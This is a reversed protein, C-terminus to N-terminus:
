TIELEAIREFEVPIRYRDLGAPQCDVSRQNFIVQEPLRPLALEIEGRAKGPRELRLRVGNPTALWAAVELGQSIHLDSGLYAAGWMEGSAAPSGPPLSRLSLLRVGHAPIRGLTLVGGGIRATTGGWFSRAFYDGDPDLDFKELPLTTDAPKDDWNFIALLHWVGTVNELDLRLLRPTPADFWDLVRPTEGILPLLQEAIRLREPPLNPLDDSLLVPGGTLAIATALTQVEDLTLDSDPRLLLCDPDNIWWRRHLPARTLTNQIANRAAPMAPEDRFSGKHGHFAPMWDPAVDAGIRMADVLGIGSGLPCGCGLLTTDPGVAQRLAELGMRLVQARTKTRDRYRGPLAAAYLFDLKLYPYGWERAATSVVQYAYDLAEPHTLDLSRNFADWVFGANVPLRWRNRLLWDPHQRALKSKPHVIFPALWLGPTLGAARIESALPAVGEPFGPSFDFWDGIQAEFGDDIQFLQLPVAPRMETAAQLNTRMKDATIDQFFHYWSCWGASSQLNSIPSQLSSISSQLSSVSSQFSFVSSQIGHERAVADLYPGLPDPADINVFQIAAWDTTIQAGPDLRAHDGNAWLSLAPYVSDCRTELSSFHQKQSLFGALIGTRHQRDGLVGFMDSAFHGAKKPRPTGANYWMPASIFGLRTNRYRDDPGFVGTHSWSQWGNSFFAIEGPDPHPRIVGYGSPPINKRLSVYGPEPLLTKKPFFGARLLVLRDIEVAHKGQNEISLKWLFLPHNEPLAFTFTYILGNKDPGITAHLQTLTGHPSTVNEPGRIQPNLWQELAQFRQRGRRYHVRMWVDELFPGGLNTGHLSWTAKDPNIVFQLHPSPLTFTM